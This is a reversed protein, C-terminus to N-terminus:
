SLTWLRKKSQLSSYKRLGGWGELRRKIGRAINWEYKRNNSSTLSEEAELGNGVTREM